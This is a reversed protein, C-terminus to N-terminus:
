FFQTRKKLLIYSCGRKIDYNTYFIVEQISWSKSPLDVNVHHGSTVAYYPLRDVTVGSYPLKLFKIIYSRRLDARKFFLPRSLNNHETAFCIYKEVYRAGGRLANICKSFNTSTFEERTIYGTPLFRLKDTLTCGQGLQSV